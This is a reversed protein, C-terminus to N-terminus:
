RHARVPGLRGAPRVRRPGDRPLAPRHDHGREVPAGSMLAEYFHEFFLASSEDFTEWLTAVVSRTGRRLTAQALGILEDGPKRDSMGTVCGSLVLLGPAPGAALLDEVTVVGDAMALRSLLPDTADYVGHSAVHLVAPSGAALLADRTAAAGLRSPRRPHRSRRQAEKEAGPLDGTPNGLVVPPGYARTEGSVRCSRSTARRRSRRDPRFPHAPVRRPPADDGAPVFWLASFPVYHLAGHPVIILNQTHRSYRCSPRLFLAAFLKNGSPLERTAASRDGPPLRRLGRKGVPEDFGGM